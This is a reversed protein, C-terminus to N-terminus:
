EERQKGRKESRVASLVQAEGGYLQVLIEGAPSMTILAVSARTGQRGEPRERTSAQPRPLVVVPTTAKLVQRVCLAGQM